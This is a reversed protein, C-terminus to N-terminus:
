GLPKLKKVNEESIEAIKEEDKINDRLNDATGRADLATIVHQVSELFDADIDDEKTDAGIEV